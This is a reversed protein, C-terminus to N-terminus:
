FFSGNRGNTTTYRERDTAMDPNIGYIRMNSKLRAIWRMKPTRQNKNGSGDGEYGIRKTAVDM